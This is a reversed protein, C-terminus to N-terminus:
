KQCRQIKGWHLKIEKNDLGVQDVVKKMYEFAKKCKKLRYYGWAVSDMYAMNNPASKLAEKVLRLGKNIDIKYDILLYGYYNKYSPNNTAKLALEFNAIIHKMMTKKNTALEFEFIAIQGLLAKNKTKKYLKRVLTLAKKYQGAREYLLLLRTNDVRNKELFSIAENIDKQELTSVLLNLIRYATMTNKHAKFQMKLISIMGDLNQQERYFTILKNCVLNKCGYLRIFTELYSVAKKKEDLYTYLINVLSVLAKPKADKAYASEFYEIAKRYEGRAYYVNGVIEYNTANNYKKLLKKALKLSEDIKVLQLSSIVALRYFRENEKPYKDLNEKCLALSTKFDKSLLSQTVAKNLYEYDNTEKYLKTYIKASKDIKNHLEYDLAMLILTDNKTNLTSTSLKSGACGTFFIFFIFILRNYSSM